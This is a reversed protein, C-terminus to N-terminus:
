GQYKKIALKIYWLGSPEKVLLRKKQIKKRAQRFRTVVVRNTDQHVNIDIESETTMRRLKPYSHGQLRDERNPSTASEEDSEIEDMFASM